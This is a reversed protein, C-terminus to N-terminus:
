VTKTFLFPNKLFRFRKKLLGFTGEIDKRVSELWKSFQIEDPVSSEKIPCVLARWRHYGNDSILYLGRHIYERGASDEMKYPYQTYLPSKRVSSAFGDFRM